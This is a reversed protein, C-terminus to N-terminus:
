RLVERDDPLFIRGAMFDCSSSGSAENTQRKVGELAGQRCCIIYLHDGSEQIASKNGNVYTGQFNRGDADQNTVFDNLKGDDDDGLLPEGM